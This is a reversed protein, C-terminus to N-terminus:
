GRGGGVVIWVFNPQTQDLPSSNENKSVGEWKLHNSKFTKKKDFIDFIVDEM